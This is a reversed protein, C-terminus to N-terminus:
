QDISIANVPFENTRDILARGIISHRAGNIPPNAVPVPAASQASVPIVAPRSWNTRELYRGELTVQRALTRNTGQVQFSYVLADQAPRSFGFLESTRGSVAPDGPQNAAAPNIRGFYVSGDQDLLRIDGGQREFQFSNLVPPAARQGTADPLDIFRLRLAAGLNTMAGIASLNVQKLAITEQLPARASTATLTAPGYTTPSAKSLEPLKIEQPRASPGRPEASASASDRALALESELGLNRASTQPPAQLPEVDNRRLQSEAKQNLRVSESSPGRTLTEARQDKVEEKLPNVLARNESPLKPEAEDPRTPRVRLSIIAVLLIAGLGSAFAVQPWWARLRQWFPLSTQAHFRRAVEAQLMKRSASHLPLDVGNKRAEAYARLLKDMDQQEEEPM